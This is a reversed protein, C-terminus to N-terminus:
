ESLSGSTTIASCLKAVPLHAQSLETYHFFNLFYFGCFYSLATLCIIANIFRRSTIRSKKKLKEERRGDKLECLYLLKFAYLVLKTLYHLSMPSFIRSLTWKLRHFICAVLQTHGLNAKNNCIHMPEVM